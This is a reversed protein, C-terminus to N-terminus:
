SILTSIYNFFKSTIKSNKLKNISLNKKILKKLIKQKKIKIKLKRLKKFRKLKAIFIYNKKNTKMIIKMKRLKEIKNNLKYKIIKTFRGNVQIYKNIVIRKELQIMNIKNDKKHSILDFRKFNFFRLNYNKNINQIQQFHLLKNQNENQNENQYIFNKKNYFKIYQKKKYNKNLIILNKFL